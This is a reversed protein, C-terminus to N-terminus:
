AMIGGNSMGTAFVRKPDVNAVTALDNLLQRTFELDDVRTRLANGCCNGGKFTLARVLRGTGNPYVAIFGADNSKRNLGSFRVMVEANSGGGHYVLVVPTPTEPKYRPPIHVLYNRALGGVKLTRTHDGPGIADAGVVSILLLSAIATM